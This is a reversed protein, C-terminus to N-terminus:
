SYSKVNYQLEIELLALCLWNWSLQASNAKNEIGGALWGGPSTTFYSYILLVQKTRIMPQSWCLM